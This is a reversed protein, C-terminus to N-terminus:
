QRKRVLILAIIGIVIDWFIDVFPESRFITQNTNNEWVEYGVLVITGLLYYGYKSKIIVNLILGLLIGNIFHVISWGDLYIWDNIYIETRLWQKFQEIQM